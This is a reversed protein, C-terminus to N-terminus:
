TIYHGAYYLFNNFESLTYTEYNTTSGSKWGIGVVDTAASQGAAELAEAVEPAANFCFSLTLLLAILSFIRKKM